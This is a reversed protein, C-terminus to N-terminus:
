LSPHNSAIFSYGIPWGKEVFTTKFCLLWQGMQCLKKSPKVIVHKWLDLSYPFTSLEYGQVEGTYLEALM